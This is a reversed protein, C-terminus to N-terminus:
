WRWASLGAVGDMNLFGYGILGGVAGGVAMTSPLISFLM